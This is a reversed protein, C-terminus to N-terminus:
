GSGGYLTAAKEETLFKGSDDPFDWVKPSALNPLNLKHVVNNSGRMNLLYDGMHVQFLKNGLSSSIYGLGLESSGSPNGLGITIAQDFRNIGTFTNVGALTPLGLSTRSRNIWRGNAQDYSLIDFDLPSTQTVDGLQWISSGSLGTLYGNNSVYADVEAETLQSDGSLVASIYVEIVDGVDIDAENMDGINISANYYEVTNVINENFGIIKGLLSKLKTKNYVQVYFDHTGELAEFAYLYESYEANFLINTIDSAVYEFVVNGNGATQGFISNIKHSVTFESIPTYSSSSFDEWSDGDWYQLVTDTSNYIVDFNDPTLADRQVTTYSKIEKQYSIWTTGNYYQNSKIDTNYIFDGEAPTLADRQVTTLEYLRIYPTSLGDVYDDPPLQAFAHIGSILFAIFLIIKKM